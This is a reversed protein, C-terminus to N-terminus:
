ASGRQGRSGIYNKLWLHFALVFLLASLGTSSQSGVILVVVTATVVARRLASPDFTLVTILGILLFLAMGTKHDFLGHWGPLPPQSNGPYIHRTTTSPSIILAAITMVVVVYFSALIARHDGAAAARRRHDDLRDDAGRRAIRM